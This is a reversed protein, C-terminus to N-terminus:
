PNVAPAAPPHLTSRSSRSVRRLVAAPVGSFLVGLEGLILGAIAPGFLVVIGDLSRAFGVWHGLPLDGVVPLTVAHNLDSHVVGLVNAPHVLERDATPNNDGQTRYWVLGAADTVVEVIRHTTPPRGTATIYTIAQGPALDLRNVAPDVLLTTGTMHTPEMSGSLVRYSDTGTSSAYAVFGLHTAIGTILAAAVLVHLTRRGAKMAREFHPHHTDVDARRLERRTPAQEGERRSM